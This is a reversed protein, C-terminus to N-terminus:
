PQDYTSGNCEKLDHLVMKQVLEKFSTKCEWGLVTKAKTPDGVLIDVESPRYYKKDVVVLVRGTIADIGREDLGSGTWRMIVNCQKFAEEVFERVTHTHGSALVYDDPIEQQLIRWMGEVYEPAYGWDRQADLNGIKLVYEPDQVAKAVGITIKRSVFEPGRRESEHNFLIGNCAYMGYSERYNKVIWFSYLKAVGYPSRPYFPTAESQPIQHVKGYLESTSAQYLRVNPIRSIRIAELIRLPGLADINASCEPQHFSTHVHSQAALNYIEVREAVPLAQFIHVMSIIDTMDFEHLHFRPHELLHNIRLTNPLSTHRNLGYVEYGKDLLLEALYSGDQGTVGTIVAVFM